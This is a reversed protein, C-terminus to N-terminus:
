TLLAGRPLTQNLDLTVGRWVTKSSVSPLKVLATLLLKLYKFYPRISDDDAKRLAHNLKWYLSENPADWEITYLRISASEDVTLGDSPQHPTQNLALHAYTSLNNVINALPGCADVLSLLPEEIYTTLPGPRDKFVDTPNAIKLDQEVISTDILGRNRRTLSITRDDVTEM